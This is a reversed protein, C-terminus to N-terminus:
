IDGGTPAEDRGNGDGQGGGNNGQGGGNNGQGHFYVQMSKFGSVNGSKLDVVRCYITQYSSATATYNYIFYSSSSSQSSGGSTSNVYWDYRYNGSGGRALTKFGTHDYTLNDITVRGYSKITMTRDISEGPIKIDIARFTIKHTGPSFAKTFTTTNNGQDVGNVLWKYSLSGSGGKPIGGEFTIKKSSSFHGEEGNHYPSKIYSLSSSYLRDYVTITKSKTIIGQENYSDTLTCSVTYTGVTSFTKNFLVDTSVNAGNVKWLYTYHGSGGSRNISFKVETGKIIHTHNSKVELQLPPYVEVITREDKYNYNYKKLVKGDADAIHDLRNLGDYQYYTTYGKPDTMSTVGILPDYTYTSVIANPLGDRLEKLANRLIEEKCTSSKCHDNDENSKNKLDTVRSAIQNYTANEIKAIPYQDNYGWIYIIRSGDSKSVEKPNGDPYYGHYVLRDELTNNSAAYEGKLSQVSEPMVIGNGWDKYNTRQVTESLVTGGKKVITETQLPTAIRHQRQLHAETSLRLLQIAGWESTSLQDNGLSTSSNVDQPYAIKSLISRGDSTVVEKRSLQLHNPNDYYYNTTTVIPNEGNQDFTKSVTKDIYRWQSQLDYKVIDYTDITASISGAILGSYLDRQRMNYSTQNQNLVPNNKYSNLTTTLVTFDNGSKKITHTEIEEGTGFNTTYPTGAIPLAYAVPVINPSVRYKHVVGGGSFNDGFEEIVSTYGIQHGARSYMNYLTSSSLTLKDVIRNELTFAGDSVSHLRNYSISPIAKEPVGSSTELNSLEAYHYSRTEQNGASDHSVIKKIRQGGILLNTPIEEPKEVAYQVSFSGGVCEFPVSLRFQYKKGKQLDIYYQSSNSELVVIGGTENLRNGHQDIRFFGESGSAPNFVNSGQNAIKVTVSARIHHSPWGSEWCSGRGTSINVPVREQLYAIEDTVKTESNAMQDATNVFSLSTIATLPTTLKTGLYSHPEYILENYGGTPYVIAKLMGNVSTSGNPQKNGGVGKFIDKLTSSNSENIFFYDDNSVMYKNYHENNYYGWYDQAYSFRPPIKEPSYYSLEYPPKSINHNGFETVSKLFLRKSFDEFYPIDANKLYSLSSNVTTYDLVIKKIQSGNPNLLQITDLKQFETTNASYTFIIQGAKSSISALQAIKTNARTRVLGQGANGIQGSNALFSVSQSVSSDYEQNYNSYSFNIEDGFPNEIKSLYWSTPNRLSWGHQGTGVHQYMTRETSNENGFWYIVGNPDTIKFAYGLHTAKEIRLPSPNILVPERNTNLYFKGSFGNFNFSYLDSLTDYGDESNTANQIYNLTEQTPDNPFNQPITATRNEDADDMIVRSIIGGANLSWGLGVASPLEDVRIGNSSYNLSIPVTLKGVSFDHIPITIQPTGTFLGVPVQGYKGLSAANPSPPLIKPIEQALCTFGTVLVVLTILLKNM